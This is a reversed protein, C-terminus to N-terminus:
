EGERGRERGGVEIERKEGEGGRDGEGERRERAWGQRDKTLSPLDENM